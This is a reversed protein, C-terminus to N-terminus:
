QVIWGHKMTPQYRLVRLASAIRAFMPPSIRDLRAVVLGVFRRLWQGSPRYGIAAVGTILRALSRQDYNRRPPTCCPRRLASDHLRVLAERVRHLAWPRTVGCQGGGLVCM